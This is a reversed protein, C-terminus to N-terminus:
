TSNCICGSRTPDNHNLRAIMSVEFDLFPQLWRPRPTTAEAAWELLHESPVLLAYEGHSRITIACGRLPDCVLNALGVPQPVYILTAAGANGSQPSFDVVDLGAETWGDALYGSSQLQLVSEPYSLEM